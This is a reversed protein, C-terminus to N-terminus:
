GVSFDGYAILHPIVPLGAERLAQVYGRQRDIRIPSGARGGVFAIDRHGITVLYDVAQKAAGVNDIFVSTVAPDDIYECANVLPVRGDMRVEPMHPLLTIVGDAQRASVLEAYRRERSRDYQTDGLLVSYGREHAAQEIGRIVGSFFPNSIDPVLALILGARSTRLNRAAANPTYNLREVAELVRQRTSPIVLNPTQLTRSVTAVSVGAEEAVAKISSASRKRVM